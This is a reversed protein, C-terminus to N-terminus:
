VKNKDKDTDKAVGNQSLDLSKDKSEYFVWLITDVLNTIWKLM